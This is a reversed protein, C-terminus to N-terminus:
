LQRDTRKHIKELDAALQPHRSRPELGRLESIHVHKRTATISGRASPALRCGSKLCEPARSSEGLRERRDHSCRHQEGAQPPRPVRRIDGGTVQNGGAPSVQRTFGPSSRRFPTSSTQNANTVGGTSAGGDNAPQALFLAEDLVQSGNTKNPKKM